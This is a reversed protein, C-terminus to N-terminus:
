SDATSAARAKYNRWGGAGTIDPKGDAAAAECVFGVIEAGGRLFIKALGLPPPIECLLEGVAATPISWVELELSGGGAARFVGPRLEDLAAMRYVPATRDTRVFSAGLRALRPELPFGRM